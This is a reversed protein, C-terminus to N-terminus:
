VALPLYRGSIGTVVPRWRNLKELSPQVIPARVIMAAVSSETGSIAGVQVVLTEIFVGDRSQHSESSM